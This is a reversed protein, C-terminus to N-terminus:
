SPVGDIEASSSAAFRAAPSFITTSSLRGSVSNWRILRGPASSQGPASSTWRIKSTAGSGSVSTTTFQAPRVREIMPACDSRFAPTGCRTTASRLPVM